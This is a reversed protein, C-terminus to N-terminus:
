VSVNLESESHTLGKTFEPLRRRRRDSRIRDHTKGLILKLADFSSNIARFLNRDQRLTKYVRASMGSKLTVECQYVPHRNVMNQRDKEVRVTIHLDNEPHILKDTITEVKNLIFNETYQSRQIDKFFLETRM